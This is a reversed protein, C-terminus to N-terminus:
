NTRLAQRLKSVVAQDFQFQGGPGYPVVSTFNPISDVNSINLDSLASSLRNADEAFMRSLCHLSPPLSARARNARDDFGNQVTQLIFSFGFGYVFSRKMRGVLVGLSAYDHPDDPVIDFFSDINTQIVDSPFYPVLRDPFFNYFRLSNVFDLAAPQNTLNSLRRNVSKSVALTLQQLRQQKLPINDDNSTDGIYFGGMAASRVCIGINLIDSLEFGASFAELRAKAEDARKGKDFGEILRDLCQSYATYTFGPIQAIPVTNEFVTLTGNANDVKFQGSQFSINAGPSNAFKAAIGVCLDRAVLARDLNSSQQQASVEKSQVMLTLFLFAIIRLVGSM